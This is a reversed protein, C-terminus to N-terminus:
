LHLDGQISGTQVVGRHFEGGGISNHVPGPAPLNGANEAVLERLAEAAAPDEHLLRRLRTRWVAELDIRATTDGSDHLAVVERREQELEAEVQDAEVPNRSVRRLLAALRSSVTQWGETAMLTVVTTAGSAVLAALEEEM